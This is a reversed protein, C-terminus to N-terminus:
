ASACERILEDRWTTITTRITHDSAKVCCVAEGSACADARTVVIKLTDFFGSESDEADFALTGGAARAKGDNLLEWNAAINLEFGVRTKGRVHILQVAGDIKECTIFLQLGRQIPFITATILNKLSTRAAASVDREEWTGATNWPSKKTGTSTTSNSELQSPPSIVPSPVLRPSNTVGHLKLEAERQATGVNWAYHDSSSPPSPNM